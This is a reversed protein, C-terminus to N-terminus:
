PRQSATSSALYVETLGSLLRNCEKDTTAIRITFPFEQSAVMVLHLSQNEVKSFEFGVYPVDHTKNPQCLEPLTFVRCQRPSSMLSAHGTSILETGIDRPTWESSIGVGADKWFGGPAFESLALRFFEGQATNVDTATACIGSASTSFVTDHLYDMRNQIPMAFVSRWAQVVLMRLLQKESLM